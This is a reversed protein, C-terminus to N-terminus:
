NTKREHSWFVSLIVATHLNSVSNFIFVKFLTNLDTVNWFSIFKHYSFHMIFFLFVFKNAKTLTLRLHFLLCIFSFAPTQYHIEVDCWQRATWYICVTCCIVKQLEVLSEWLLDFILYFVFLLSLLPKVVFKM